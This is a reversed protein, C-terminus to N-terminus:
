EGTCVGMWDITSEVLQKAEEATIKNDTQRFRQELSRLKGITM